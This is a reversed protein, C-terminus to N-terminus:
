RVLNGSSRPLVRGTVPEIDEFVNQQYDVLVLFSSQLLLKGNKM